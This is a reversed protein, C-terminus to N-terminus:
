ILAFNSWVIGQWDLPRILILAPKNYTLQDMPFFVIVNFALYM